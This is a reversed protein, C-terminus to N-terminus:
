VWADRSGVDAMVGMVFVSFRALPSTCSYEGVAVKSPIGM